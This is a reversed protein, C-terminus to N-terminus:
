RPTCFSFTSWITARATGFRTSGKRRNGGFFLYASASPEPKFHRPRLIPQYKSCSAVCWALWDSSALVSRDPHQGPEPTAGTGTTTTGACNDIVNDDLTVAGNLAIIRGCVATAGTDLTDSAVAIITGMFAALRM